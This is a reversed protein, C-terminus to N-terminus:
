LILAYGLMTFLICYYYYQATKHSIWALWLIVAVHVHVYTCEVHEHLAKPLLSSHWTEHSYMLMVHTVMHLKNVCFSLMM